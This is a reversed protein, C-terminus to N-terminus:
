PELEVRKFCDFPLTKTILEINSVDRELKEIEMNYKDILEDQEKRKERLAELTEELQADKIKAEIEKIEVEYKDIEDENINPSNNLENIIANVNDLLDNVSKSAEETDKGARGVKEKADNILTDNSRTIEMLNKLRGETNTVRDFMLNAENGLDSANQYLVEASNKIKLANASANKALYDANKANELAREASGKAENLSVEAQGINQNTENIIAVIEEITNLADEAEQKSKATQRDFDQFLDYYEKAKKIIENGLIVSKDAQAKLINIEDMLEDTSVQQRKANDLLDEGELLKEKIDDLLKDNNILLNDSKNRINYAEDELGKVKAKLEEINMHPVILNNVENLLELAEKKAASAKEKVEKSLKQTNNLTQEVGILENKIIRAEEIIKQQILTANRAKELADISKNRTEETKLTLADARVDLEDALNRAEHAIETMKDSQQGATKSRNRADELVQKADVEFHKVLDNLRSEAEKFQKDTEIMVEKTKIAKEETTYINEDIGILTKSIEEKKDRIDNVQKVITNDGTAEKVDQYFTAIEKKVKNLEDPFQDDAIVTPNREIEDLIENLKQLKNNHTRSANQVLNYCDPCDICGKQRAFKNEKCRDCRRGEVNNLCPCQGSADCQLDTSGIGDCDCDTCGKISFGYKLTECHDCRLGTVGPRCFCQGTYSDCTHNLSGVTDCDCSQCGAGSQLNYFGDECKDCNTGVVHPKCVCSGSSQDCIPAGDNNAQTGLHYCECIKCGEPLIPNGYHGVLCEDCHFGATNHICRLCEGTTPDCNGIGNTDIHNNCECPVCQNNQSRFYGDSCSECKAGAYGAPCETCMINEEDVQICAGGNPCGCPQCDTETGGLANGYYGRACFECNEGATNHHCICRGSESDCIEAHKNCDCPICHNFPGQDPFHRYGPACSECYQGVYGDPCKCLEVWKAPVGAVGRSATELKVDDLFGVGQPSYTGKIRIATLNTLISIFAIASLRPQWGFDPHEHLRFKYEQVQVNPTPNKQAFITNSVEGGAGELIIDRATPIARPDGIRLTFYLLQNYSARQDGLFRDPAVFYASEDALAQVGISQSVGDYRSEIHRNYEDMAYWRENSKAFGSEIQYKSFGPASTCESTQGYCFCPSCGFENEMDLNFFGPKCERCHKGEVNSKCMCFGTWPDCRPENNISGAPECDCSKCGSAGFDYHNSACRDCKEGTVGPKCQCKGESNCQLSRSGVSDCECAICYGDERM